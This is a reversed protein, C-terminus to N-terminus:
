GRPLSGCWVMCGLVWSGRFAFRRCHSGCLGGAVAVTSVAGAIKGMHESGINDALTAMGVIWMANSVVSQFFRGVLLEPVTDSM